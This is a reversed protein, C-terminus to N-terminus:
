VVINRGFMICSNFLPAGKGLRMKENRMKMVEVERGHLDPICACRM